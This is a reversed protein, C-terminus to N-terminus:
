ISLFYRLLLHNDQSAAPSAVAEQAVEVVRVVVDFDDGRSVEEEESGEQRADGVARDFGAADDLGDAAEHALFPELVGLRLADLDIGGGLLDM